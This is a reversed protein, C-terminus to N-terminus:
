SGVGSAITHTTLFAEDILAALRALCHTTADPVCFLSRTGRRAATFVDPREVCSVLTCGSQISAAARRYLAGGATDVVLSALRCHTELSGPTADIVRHAGLLLLERESAPSRALAITRVGHVAALQVAFAGIVTDAGLVLVTENAEIRGIKFLMQWASTGVLAASAAEIADLRSPLRAMRSAEVVVLQNDSSGPRTTTVGFVRDGVDFGRTGGAIADITGAIGFRTAAYWDDGNCTELIPLASEAELHVLLMGRTTTPPDEEPEELEDPDVAPAPQFQQLASAARVSLRLTRATFSEGPRVPCNIDAPQTSM